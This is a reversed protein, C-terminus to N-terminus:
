HTIEFISADYAYCFWQITKGESSIDITQMDLNGLTPQRDLYCVRNMGGLTVYYYSTTPKYSQPLSYLTGHQELLVPEGTIIVKDAYTSFSIGLIFLSLLHKLKKM